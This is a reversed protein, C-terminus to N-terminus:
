AYGERVQQQLAFQIALLSIAGRSKCCPQASIEEKGTIAFRHLVIVLRLVPPTWTTPDASRAPSDALPYVRCLSVPAACGRTVWVVRKWGCRVWRRGPLSRQRSHRPLTKECPPDRMSRTLGGVSRLSRRTGGRSTGPAAAQQGRRSGRTRRPRRRSARAGLRM